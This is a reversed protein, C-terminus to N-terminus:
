GDGYNEEGAAKQKTAPSNGKEKNRGQKRKPSSKSRQAKLWMGYQNNKEAKGMRKDGCSKEGHGIIGCNYCFDPCREYRFDVWIRAGNLRVTTGRLLPQTIDVEVLIKVHKGEKSGGSPVIVDQVTTFIERIKRGVEKTICHIPLKWIQVWLLAKRFAKTDKDIGREWKKLNLLQNDMVYPCGKLVRELDNPEAFSFQYLNGGIETVELNRPQNWMFNVFNKVGTFNAPKEGIIKGILSRRCEEEQNQEETESLDVGDFENNSLDLRQLVEVLEDTM